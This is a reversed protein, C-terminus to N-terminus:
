KKRKAKPLDAAYLVIRGGVLEKRYTGRALATYLEPRTLGLRRCAEAFSVLEPLSTSPTPTPM